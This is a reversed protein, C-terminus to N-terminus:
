KAIPTSGELESSIAHERVARGELRNLPGSVRVRDRELALAPRRCKQPQGDVAARHTLGPVVLVRFRGARSGSRSRLGSAVVAAEVVESELLKPSRSRRGRADASSPAAKEAFAAMGEKQDETAFLMAFLRAESELNTRHPGQLALNVAEKAYALAVPSKAELGRCLEM